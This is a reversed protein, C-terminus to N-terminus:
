AAQSRASSCPRSRSARRVIRPVRLTLENPVLFATATLVIMLASFSTLGMVVGIGLHMGITALAMAARTRRPWILFAYAAEVALTGWGALVAVWQVTALWTMDVQSLGPLTVSRWVAEGNWWQPGMGKEIASSLYVICLHLQLVRISLRNMATPLALRGRADLSLNAGVPFVVCYFLAIHAFMDVGYITAAAANNLALHTLWAVIAAPRTRWGLLLAFLALGYVVFTARAAHDAAINLPTLLAAVTRVRPALPHISTAGDAPDLVDWRVNATPGYLADVDGALCLAQVLLVATVGIRFAALPTASAPEHFFRNAAAVVTRLAVSIRHNPNPM